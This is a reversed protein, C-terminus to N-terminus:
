VEEWGTIMAKIHSLPTKGTTALYMHVVLFTLFAFAGATHLLAISDLRTGVGLASWSNYYLYLLGTIVQLPFLVIKLFLYTIRQLPNLKREPLKEVPHPLGQFIDRTYYCVVDGINELKPLYQKWQGTTFHWFVAFVTLGLLGWALNNHWAVAEKFGLWSLTGHVELGTIALGIILLAQVWHWFREFRTYLFIKKAM